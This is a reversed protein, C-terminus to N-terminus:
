FIIECLQKGEDSMEIKSLSLEFFSILNCFFRLRGMGSEVWATAASFKRLNFKLGLWLGGYHLGLGSLWSSSWRFQRWLWWFLQVVSRRRHLGTSFIDFLAHLSCDIFARKNYHKKKTVCMCVAQYLYYFNQDM